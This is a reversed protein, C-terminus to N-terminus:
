AEKNVHTSCVNIEINNILRKFKGEKKCRKDKATIYQCGHELHELYDVKDNLTAIRNTLHRVLSVSDSLQHKLTDRQQIVEEGRAIQAKLEVQDADHEIFTSQVFSKGDLKYQNILLLLEDDVRIVNSKARGIKKRGAGARKGGHNNMSEDGIDKFYHLM